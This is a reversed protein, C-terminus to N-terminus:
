MDRNEEKVCVILFKVKRRRNQMIMLAKDVDDEITNIKEFRMNWKLEVM